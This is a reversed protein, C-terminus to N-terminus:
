DLCWHRHIEKLGVVAEKYSHFLNRFSVTQQVGNTFRVEVMIDEYDDLSVGPLITVKRREYSVSMIGNKTKDAEGKWTIVFNRFHNEEIYSSFYKEYKEFYSEKYKKATRIEIVKALYPKQSKWNVFFFQKGPVIDQFKIM